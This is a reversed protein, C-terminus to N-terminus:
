FISFFFFLTSSNDGYHPMQHQVRGSSSMIINPHPPPRTHRERGKDVIRLWGFLAQPFYQLLLLFSHYYIYPTNHKKNNWKTSIRNKFLFFAVFIPVGPGGGGGHSIAREVFLYYIAVSM